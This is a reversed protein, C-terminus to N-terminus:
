PESKLNGPWVSLRVAKDDTVINVKGDGAFGIVEGVQKRGATRVSVKSGIKLWDPRDRELRFEREGVLHYLIPIEDVTLSEIFDTVVVREGFKAPISKPVFNDEAAGWACPLDDIGIGEGVCPTDGEDATEFYVCAGCRYNEGLGAGRLASRRSGM